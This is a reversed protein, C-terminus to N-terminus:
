IIWPLPGSSPFGDFASFAFVEDRCIWDMDAKTIWVGGNPAGSPCIGHSKKGWQNMLYFLEGFQSHRWWALVSMQHSWSGQKRALLCAGEGSGQVRGGDHAYMSAATCPYGNVIAARVDDASNCKAVTKVLHKRSTPLLAMTDPNDGDSWKMEVARGWCSMDARDFPPLGQSNAPVVGDERAAKAFTSGTSGEGPSRDGLYYRSRGYPLLWFPVIPDEPDGLRVAEICALTMWCNGGGAGVCSGTVQRIGEFAFGNAAVVTPHKWAEFLLAKEPDGKPHPPPSFKPMEAETRGVAAHDLASRMPPAKWGFDWIDCNGMYLRRGGVSAFDFDAPGDAGVAEPSTKKKRTM